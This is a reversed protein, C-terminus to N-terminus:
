IGLFGGVTEREERFSDGSAEYAVRGNVFIYARDALSQAMELNQEVLLIALGREILHRCVEEVKQIVHTSLGESPEDMMLLIPNTVLARSIALMQQEGGSLRAGVVKTRIRLEPFLEYVAEPTWPFDKKRNRCAFRLHEDVTLSPFLLRGQPVYGIGMAAIEHTMSRVTERGGFVITGERRVPSLGLVSRLLTTKGMGNRGIVVVLQGSNVELDIGQLAHSKGYYANLKSIHLLSRSMPIVM